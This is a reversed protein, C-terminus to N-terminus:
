HEPGLLELGEEHLALRLRDDGVPDEARGALHTPRRERRAEDSAIMLDVDQAFRDILMATDDFEDSCGADAFRPQEVGHEVVGLVDDHILADARRVSDARGVAHDPGQESAARTQGVVEAGFRRPHTQCLDHGRDRWVQQRHQGQEGDREARADFRGVLDIRDIRLESADPDPLDDHVKEVRGQDPRCQQDDLVGVPDVLRRGIQEVVENSRAGASSPGTDHRAARLPRPVDVGVGLVDAAELEM